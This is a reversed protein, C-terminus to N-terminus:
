GRQLGTLKLTTETRVATFSQFGHESHQPELLARTIQARGPSLSAPSLGAPSSRPELGRPEFCGLGLLLLIVPGRTSGHVGQTM